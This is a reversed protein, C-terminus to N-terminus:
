TVARLEIATYIDNGRQEESSQGEDRVLGDCLANAGALGM